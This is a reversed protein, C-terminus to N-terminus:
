GSSKLIGMEKRIPHAFDLELSAMIEGLARLFLEREGTDDIERLKSGLQEIPEYFTELIDLVEQGLTSEM